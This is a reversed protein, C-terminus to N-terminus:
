PDREQKIDKAFEKSWGLDEIRPPVNVYDSWHILTEGIGVLEDASPRYIFEGESSPISITPGGGYFLPDNGGLVVGATRYQPPISDVDVLVNKRKPKFVLYYGSMFSLEHAFKKAISVRNSTSVMDQGLIKTMANRLPSFDIQGSDLERPRDEGRYYFNAVGKYLYEPMKRPGFYKILPALDQVTLGHEIDGRTWRIVKQIAKEVADRGFEEVALAMKEEGTYSKKGPSPLNVVKGWGPLVITRRRLHKRVHVTM